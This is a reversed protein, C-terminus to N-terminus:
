PAIGVLRARSFDTTPFRRMGRLQNRQIYVWASQITPIIAVENLLIHQMEDFAEMRAQQDTSYHTFHMLEDYRANNFAMFNFPSSSTFLGAFYVPDKFVGGCFGSRAIDFDGQYFKAISQKFTQKDVRVDLGLANELQSQVFEGEIQRNENILMVIPPIEEVGLEQKAEAILQRGKAVNYEIEPPPFEQLFPGTQSELNTSYPSNAVLTGPLGVITNAYRDRDLAYRIAQRIKKHSTIRNPDQNLMIWSLCNTTERRVRIGSNLTDKLIEENLRLAALQEDKYLNLLSRTDSTIYGFNIANLPIRDNEYYHKNKVVNLSASHVWSSMNFPGNFLLRDADAGYRGQQAEVFDQRLPRYATGAFVTLYYPAPRSLRLWLTKDDLAKVSLDAVPRKGDLIDEGHELIYAFYTSGAAGTEPNVLRKFAYEFDHATVPKGDSWLADRLYFTVELGDQQWREAIAPVVQGRRDIKVLGESILTLVLNSTTDSSLSSDLNPPESQLALTIRNNAPDIGKSLAHESFLTLFFTSALTIGILALKAPHLIDPYRM